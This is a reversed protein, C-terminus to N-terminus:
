HSFSNYQLIWSYTLCQLIRSIIQRKAVKESPSRIILVVLLWAVASLLVIQILKKM